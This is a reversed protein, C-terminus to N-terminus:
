PSQRGRTCLRSEIPNSCWSNPRVWGRALRQNELGSGLRLIPFMPVSGSAEHGMADAAHRLANIDTVM